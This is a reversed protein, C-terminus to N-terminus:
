WPCKPTSARNIRAACPDSVNSIAKGDSRSFATCFVICNPRWFERYGPKAMRISLLINERMRFMWGLRVPSRSAVRATWISRSPPRRKSLWVILKTKPSLWSELRGRLGRFSPSVVKHLNFVRIWRDPQRPPVDSDRFSHFIVNAAPQCCQM